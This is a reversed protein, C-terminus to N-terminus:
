TLTKNLAFHKQIEGILCELQNYVNQYSGNAERLNLYKEFIKEVREKKEVLEIYDNAELLFTAARFTLDPYKM